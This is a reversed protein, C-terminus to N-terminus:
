DLRYEWHVQDTSLHITCWEELQGHLRWPLSYAQNRKSWSVVGHTPFGKLGYRFTEHLADREAKSDAILHVHLRRGRSTIFVRSM